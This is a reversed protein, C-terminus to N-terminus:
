RTKKIPEEIPKEITEKKSRSFKKVNIIPKNEEM